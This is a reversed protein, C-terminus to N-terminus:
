AESILGADELAQRLEKYSANLAAYADLFSQFMEVTIFSYAVGDVQLALPHLNNDYVSESGGAYKTTTEPQVEFTATVNKWYNNWAQANAFWIDNEPLPAVNIVATVNLGM